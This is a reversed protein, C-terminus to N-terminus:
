PVGGFGFQLDGIFPDPLDLCEIIEAFGASWPFDDTTLPDFIAGPHGDDGTCFPTDEAWHVDAIAETFIMSAFIHWGPSDSEPCNYVVLVTMWVDAEDGKCPVQFRGYYVVDNAGLFDCCDEVWAQAETSGGVSPAGGTCHGNWVMCMRVETPWDSYYGTGTLYLKAAGPLGTDDCGDVLAFCDPHLSNQACLVPFATVEHFDDSHTPEDPECNAGRGGAYVGAGFSDQQGHVIQFGQIGLDGTGLHYFGRTMELDHTLQRLQPGASVWLYDGTAAIRLLPATNADTYDYAAAKEADGTLYDLREIIFSDDDPLVPDEATTRGYYAVFVKGSSYSIEASTLPTAVVGRVPFHNPRWCWVPLGASM